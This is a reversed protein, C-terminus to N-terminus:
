PRTGAFLRPPTMGLAECRQGLMRELELQRSRPLTNWNKENLRVFEGVTGATLAAIADQLARGYVAVNSSLPIAQGPPAPLWASLLEAAEASAAAADLIAAQNRADMMEQDPPFAQDRHGVFAYAWQVPDRPTELVHGASDLVAAQFGQGAPASGGAPPPPNEPPATSGGPAPAGDPADGPGDGAPHGPPPQDTPGSAQGSDARQRSGAARQGSSAQRTPQPPDPPQGGDAMGLAGLAARFAPLGVRAADALGAIQDFGIAHLAPRSVPIANQAAYRLVGARKEELVDETIVVSEGLELMQTKWQLQVDQPILALIANRYAKAQAIKAYHPREYLSGDKRAEMRTESSEMQVANGTKIDQVEVIASYFDPQDELEPLVSAQVSMPMGPQPYSTFKFIVGTKEQSAVIRHKLGRYHFALQRAGVVSIGTVTTEKIKFSYVFKRSMSGHLVEDQILANDRAEMVHFADVDFVAETRAGELMRTGARTPMAVVGRGSM